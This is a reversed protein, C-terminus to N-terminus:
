YYKESLINKYLNHETKTFYYFNDFKENYIKIFKDPESIIINVNLYVNLSVIYKYKMIHKIFYFLTYGREIYNFNNIDPRTFRFYVFDNNKDTIRFISYNKELSIIQKNNKQEISIKKIAIYSDDINEHYKNNELENLNDHENGIYFYDIDEIINFENIYKPNIINEYAIIQLNLKNEMDKMIDNIEEKNLDRLYKNMVSISDKDLYKELM